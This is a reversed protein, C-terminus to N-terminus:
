PKVKLPLHSSCNPAGLACMPIGRRRCEAIEVAQARDEKIARAAANERLQKRVRDDLDKLEAQRKRTVM